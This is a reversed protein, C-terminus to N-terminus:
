AYLAPKAPTPVTVPLGTEVSQICADVVLMAMYGDWASPGDLCGRRVGRLWCRAETRYAEVFRTRWDEDVAQIRSYGQAIQPGQLTNTTVTGTECSIEVDVEYGYGCDSNFELFGLAGQAFELQVMGIRATGPLDPAMPLAQGYVQVIEDRMMWRASHIDHVMSNVIMEAPTRPHDSVSNRHTGRFFLRTGLTGGDILDKVEVHPVDYERMFGVQLMRRALAVEADVVQRADAVSTALPKEVLVPKNAELCALALSAHLGDPAAILVAEVDPHEILDSAAEFVLPIEYREAMTELHPRNLDAVAAIRAEHVHHSLNDVHHSGMLGIGIVGVQIPREM